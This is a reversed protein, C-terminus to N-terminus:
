LSRVHIPKLLAADLHKAQDFLLCESSKNSSMAWTLTFILHVRANKMNTQSSSEYTSTGPNIDTDKLMVAQMQGGKIGIVGCGFIPLVMVTHPLAYATRVCCDIWLRELM